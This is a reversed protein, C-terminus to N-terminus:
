RGRAANAYDGYVTGLVLLVLDLGVLAYGAAVWLGSSRVHGVVVCALASAAALLTIALVVPSSALTLIPGIVAIGLGHYIAEESRPHRSFAYVFAIAAGVVACVVLTAAGALHGALPRM